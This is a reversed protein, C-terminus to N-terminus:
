SPDSGALHPRSENESYGAGSVVQWFPFIRRRLPIAIGSHLLWGPVWISGALPM